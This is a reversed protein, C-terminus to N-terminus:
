PRPSVEKAGGDLERLRRTFVEGHTRGSEDRRSGDAGKRAIAFVEEQTRRTIAQNLNRNNTPEAIGTAQRACADAAQRAEDLLRQREAKAEDTAQSL